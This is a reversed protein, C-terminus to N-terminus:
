SSSRDRGRAGGVSPRSAGASKRALRSSVSSEAWARRGDESRAIPRELGEAPPESRRRVLTFALSLLSAGVLTVGVALWLRDGPRAVLDQADRQLGQMFRIPAGEGDGELLSVWYYVLYGGGLVLLAGSIRTMHPMVPRVARVLVERFGATGLCLLMLITSTGLGYALFTLVVGLPSGTAVASGVVVLFIPLTCSLSGVAYAAGFAFMSPHGPGSSVRLGPLRLVLQGGTLLWGGLVISTAGLGVTVWPIIEVLTHAGFAFATGAVVFLSVFGATLTLGVVLGEVLSRSGRRDAGSSGLYFSLISPLMAFGCPNLAAVLGAGFALAVPAESTALLM